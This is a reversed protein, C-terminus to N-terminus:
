SGYPIVLPGYTFTQFAFFVEFRMRSVALLPVYLEISGQYPSHQLVDLSISTQTLFANANNYIRLQVAGTLNFSAHNEFSLPVVIHLHTANYYSFDPAGVVLNYLPAGWPMSINSSAVIPIAGAATMSVTVNTILETDNFLLNQHSQLLDKVNLKIEHTANATQKELVIPIFTFGQAVRSGSADFIVTSINFPALNYFGTNVITVPFSLLLQDKEPTTIQLQGLNVRIGMMSYMASVSFIIIFIWIVTTAIGIIRIPVRM